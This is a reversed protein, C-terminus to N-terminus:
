NNSSSSLECIYTAKMSECNLAYWLGNFPQFALCSGGGPQGQAWNTYSFPTGDHWQWKGSVLNGGLWTFIDINCIM